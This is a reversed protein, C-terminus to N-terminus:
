KDQMFPYILKAIHLTEKVYDEDGNYKHLIKRIKKDSQIENWDAKQRILQNTNALHRKAALEISEDDSLPVKSRVQAIGLTLEGRFHKVLLNEIKRFFAPRNLNEYIIIAYLLLPSADYDDVVRDIVDGYELEMNAHAQIILNEVLEERSEETPLDKMSTVNLYFSVLIAVFLSSWLNDVMGSPSPAIISFSYKRSILYVAGIVISVMLINATHLLKERLFSDRMLSLFNRPFLFVGGSILLSLLLHNGNFYRTVISALLTFVTLPPIMRFLVYNLVRHRRVAIYEVITMYNTPGYHFFRKERDYAKLLLYFLKLLLGSAVSLVLISRM